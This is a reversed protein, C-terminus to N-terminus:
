GGFDDAPIHIGLTERREKRKERVSKERESVSV